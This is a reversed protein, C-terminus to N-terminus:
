RSLATPGRFLSYFAALPMGGNRVTSGIAQQGGFNEKKETLELLLLQKVRFLLVRRALRM